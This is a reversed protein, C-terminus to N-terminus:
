VASSVSVPPSLRAPWNGGPNLTSQMLVPFPNETSEITCRRVCVYVSVCVCLQPQSSVVCVEASMLVSFTKRKTGKQGRSLQLPAVCEAVRADTICSTLSHSSGSRGSRGSRSSEQWWYHLDHWWAKQTENM